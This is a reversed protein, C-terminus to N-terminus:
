PQCLMILLTNGNTEPPAHVWDDPKDKTRLENNIRIQISLPRIMREACNLEYLVRAQPQINAIGAAVEMTMMGVVQGSTIEKQLKAFPPVYHQVIKPAIAETIKKGLDTKPDLDGLDTLPLCKTWVKIRKDPGTVLGDAEYFCGSEQGDVNGGGYFKWDVGQAQAVGYALAIFTIGVALRMSTGGSWLLPKHIQRLISISSQAFYFKAHSLSQGRRVLNPCDAQIQFRQWFHTLDRQRGPNPM